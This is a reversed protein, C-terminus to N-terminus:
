STTDQSKYRRSGSPGEIQLCGRGQGAPGPFLLPAFRGPWFTTGARRWGTSSPSCPRGKRPEETPATGLQLLRDGPPARPEPLDTRRCHQSGPQATGSTLTAPGDASLGAEQSLMGATQLAANGMRGKRRLTRLEQGSGREGGPEQGRQGGEGHSRLLVTGLTHTPTGCESESSWPSARAWSGSCKGTSRTQGVGM